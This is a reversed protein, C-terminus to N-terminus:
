VKKRHQEGSSGKIKKLLSYLPTAIEAFDQIFRHYYNTAGLFSQLESKNDPARMNVIKDINKAMPTIVNGKIFHGLYKIERVGVSKKMNAKLGNELIIDLVKVLRANHEEETRGSILVDVLYYMIGKLGQFLSTM